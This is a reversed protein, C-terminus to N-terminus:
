TLNGAMEYGAHDACEKSSSVGREDTHKHVQFSALQTDRRRRSGNPFSRNESVVCDRKFIALGIHGKKVAPIHRYIHRLIQLYIARGVAAEISGDFPM